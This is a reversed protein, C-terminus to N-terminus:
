RSRHHGIAPPAAAADGAGAVAELASDGGAAVAVETAVEVLPAVVEEAGAAQGV